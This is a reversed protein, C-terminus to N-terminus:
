SFAALFGAQAGWYLPWVAYPTIRRLAHDEPLVFTEAALVMDSLMFACAAAFVWSGFPLTLAAAGMGLIIPIYALVPGKLAGARPALIKAMALGLVLLLAAIAAGPMQLLLAPDSADRTLFLVAYALHGAAFAGVGAMFAGEGGHSLFLDGLACLGLALALLWPAGMLLAALALLAVSATKLVSRLLGPQQAAMLLYILACAGAGAWLMLEATM